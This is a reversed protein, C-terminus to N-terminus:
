DIIRKNELSDLVELLRRKAKHENRLTRLLDRWQEFRKTEKYVKGMKRLYIAAEEYAKPKVPNIQGDGLKKWIPTVENQM